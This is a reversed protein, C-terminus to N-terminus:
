YMSVSVVSWYYESPGHCVRCPPMFESERGKKFLSKGVLWTLSVLIVKPPLWFKILVLYIAFEIRTVSLDTVLFPAYLVYKIDMFIYIHTHIIWSLTLM